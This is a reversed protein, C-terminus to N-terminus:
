LPYQICFGRPQALRGLYSNLFYNWFSPRHVPLSGQCLVRILPLGPSTGLAPDLLTLTSFPVDSFNVYPNPEIPHLIFRNDVDESGM